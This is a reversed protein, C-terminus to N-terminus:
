CATSWSTSRCPRRPRAEKTRAKNTLIVWGVERGPMMGVMASFGDIGGSHWLLREGGHTEKFWGRAYFLSGGTEPRFPRINALVIRPRVLQAVTTSDILQTDGHRRDNLLLQVWATM